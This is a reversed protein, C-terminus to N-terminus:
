GARHQPSAVPKPRPVASPVSERPLRAPSLMFHLRFLLNKGPDVLMALLEDAEKRLEYRDRTRVRRSVRAIGRTKEGIAQPALARRDLDPRRLVMERVHHADEFAPSGTAM